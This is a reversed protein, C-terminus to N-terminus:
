EDGREKDNILLKVIDIVGSIQGALKTVEQMNLITLKEINMIAQNIIENTEHQSSEQRDIIDKMMNDKSQILKSLYWAIGLCMLILLTPVLGIEKNAQLIFNFVDSM